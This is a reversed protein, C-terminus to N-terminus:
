NLFWVRSAGLLNELLDIALGKTLKHFVQFASILAEIIQLLNKPPCKLFAITELM